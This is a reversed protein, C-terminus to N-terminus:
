LWEPSRETGGVADTACLDTYVQEMDRARGDWDRAAGSHRAALSLAELRAGDALLATLADAFAPASPEVVLGDVGDVVLDPAATFPGRAVIPVAGAVQAEAVAMAYGERASPLALVSAGRLRAAVERDPIRGLFRVRGSIGLEVALRELADRQPGEGVVDCRIGPVSARAMDVARLLLDVRKEDILRGLCLVEAADPHPDAARISAADVGNPVVRLRSAGGMGMSRATFQSVAVVRDGMRRAASELRRAAAAVAPRHPLYEGWHEGWFEHWTVVLPTRTLRSALWAPYLPLYPTASCDIVDFRHRLLAPLLRASFATAEGVTRKGDAGYMARPRGLGHLTVGDRRVTAPGDWWQWAIMHVDHRESLRRALEHYRREAGGRVWPYVADYVFAIRLPPRM